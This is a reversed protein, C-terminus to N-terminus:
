YVSLRCCAHSITVDISFNISDSLKTHAFKMYYFNALNFTDSFLTVKIAYINADTFLVYKTCSCTFIKIVKTLMFLFLYMKVIGELM